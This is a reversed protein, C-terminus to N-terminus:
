ATPTVAGAPIDYAPRQGTINLVFTYEKDVVPIEKRRGFFMYAAKVEIHGQRVTVKHRGPMRFKQPVWFPIAKRPENPDINVLCTSDNLEIDDLLVSYRVKGSTVGIYDFFMEPIQYTDCDWQPKPENSRYSGGYIGVVTADGVPDPSDKNSM